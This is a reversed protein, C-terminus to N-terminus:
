GLWQRQWVAYDAYQVPLDPLAPPEGAVAARYLESLEAILVSSSWGDSVIHHMTVCVVHDDAGLRLLRVRLLPGAALDFPARAEGAALDRAAGVPDAEGSVDIVEVPVPGPQHIVQWPQGGDDAFTTRLM